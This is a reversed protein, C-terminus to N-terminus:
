GLSQEKWHLGVLKATEGGSRCAGNLLPQALWDGCFYVRQKTSQQWQLFQQVQKGYGPYFVPLKHPIWQNVTHIVRQDIDPLRKQIESWLMEQLQETRQTHIAEQVAEPTLQCYLMAPNNGHAPTQQWTAIRNPKNKPSFELLPPLDGQLAVHLIGLSNYRVADLMRQQEPTPQALLSKAFAGETACVVVDAHLTQGNEIHVTCPTGAEIQTVRANCQVNAGQETLIQALRQPLVGMGGQLTYVTDQGLLHPTTSLYFTPSIDEPNQSRTGRFVPEVLRKLVQEGATKRIYHALTMGDVCADVVLASAAMDPDTGRRWKALALGSRLLGWRGGLNLAPNLLTHASPMLDIRYPSGNPLDDSLRCQASLRRLPLMAPRLGMADILAHLRQGFPYILRAGTNYTIPGSQQEGMRGGVCDQAELVATAFGQQNLKWAATLGAIGAGIVIASPREDSM